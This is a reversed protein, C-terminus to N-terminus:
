HYIVDGIMVDTIDIIPTRPDLTVPMDGEDTMEFVENNASNVHVQNGILFFMNPYRDQVRM